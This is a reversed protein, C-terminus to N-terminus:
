TLVLSHGSSLVAALVLKFSMCKWVNGATREKARRPVTPTTILCSVRDNLRLQCWHRNSQVPSGLPPELEQQDVRAHHPYAGRVRPQPAPPCSLAVRDGATAETTRRKRARRQSRRACCLPHALRHSPLSTPARRLRLAIIRTSEEKVCESNPNHRWLSHVVNHPVCNSSSIGRRGHSFRHSAANTTDGCLRERVRVCAADKLTVKPCGLSNQADGLGSPHLAFM